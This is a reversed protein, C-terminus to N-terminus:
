FTVVTRISEGSHMLEFARNISDLPLTHTIMDDIAIKGDMYWDVIRPVDFYLAVDGLPLCLDVVAVRAGGAQLRAAIQCAVVTAGVGGKAGM